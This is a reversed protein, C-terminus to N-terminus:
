LSANHFNPIKDQVSRADRCFILKELNMNKWLRFRIKSVLFTFPKFVWWTKETVKNFFISKFCFWVFIIVQFFIIIEPDSM